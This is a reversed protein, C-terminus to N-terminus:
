LKNTLGPSIKDLKPKSNYIYQPGTLYTINYMNYPLTRLEILFFLVSSQLGDLSTGRKQMVKFFQQEVRGFFYYDVLVLYFVLLTISSM